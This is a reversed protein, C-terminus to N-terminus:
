IQEDPDDGGLRRVGGCTDRQRGVPHSEPKADVEGRGRGGTPKTERGVIAISGGVGHV